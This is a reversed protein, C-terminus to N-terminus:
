PEGPPLSPSQRKTTPLQGLNHTLVTFLQQLNILNQQIIERGQHVQDLHFERLERYPGDGLFLSGVQNEIDGDVINIRTQMIHGPLPGDSETPDNADSVWTTIKLEVAESLALTLAEAFQGAKLLSKFDDSTAM